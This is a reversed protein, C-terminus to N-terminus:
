HRGIDLKKSNGSCTYQRKCNEICQVWLKEDGGKDTLWIKSGTSYKHALVPEDKYTYLEYEKAIKILDSNLGKITKTDMVPNFTIAKINNKKAKEAIRWGTDKSCVGVIKELRSWIIRILKCKTYSRRNIIIGMRLFNRRLFDWISIVKSKVFPTWDPNLSLYDQTRFFSFVPNPFNHYKGLQWIPFSVGVAVTNNSNLLNILFVDWKDKLIYTDPDAVLAYKTNIKSMALNLGIAHAVSGKTGATNNPVIELNPCIEKLKDLQQDKGNTNDIILFRLNSPFQAKQILSEFLDKLFKYSYWNVTCITVNEASQRNSM